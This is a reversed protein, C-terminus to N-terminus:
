DSSADLTERIAPWLARWALTLSHSAKGSRGKLEWLTKINRPRQMAFKLVAGARVGGDENLFGGIEPPLEDQVADSVVRLAFFKIQANIARAVAFSEMDVGLADRTQGLRRKEVTSIVAERSTVLAGIQYRLDGGILADHMAGMNPPLLDMAEGPSPGLLANPLLVDGVAMNDALGGCFGTSCIWRPPNPSAILAQVAQTASNWGVGGRVILVGHREPNPIAARIANLEEKLAVLIALSSM